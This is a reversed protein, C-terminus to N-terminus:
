SLVLTFGDPCVVSGADIQCAEWDRAPQDGEALTDAMEQSVHVAAPAHRAPDTSTTFMVTAAAVTALVVAGITRRTM